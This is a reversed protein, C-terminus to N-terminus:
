GQEFLKLCRQREKGSIGGILVRRLSWSWDAPSMAMIMESPHRHFTSIDRRGGWAFGSGPNLARLDAFLTGPAFQSAYAALQPDQQQSSKPGIAVVSDLVTLKEAAALLQANPALPDLDWDSGDSMVPMSRAIVTLYGALSPALLMVVPPSGWLGFVPAEPRQRNGLDALVCLTKIPRAIELHRPFLRWPSNAAPPEAGPRFPGSFGMIHPGFELGGAASMLETIEEPLGGCDDALTRIRSPPVPPQAICRIRAAEARARLRALIDVVSTSAM